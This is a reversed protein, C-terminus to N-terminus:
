FLGADVLLRDCENLLIKNDAKSAAPKLSILAWVPPNMKTRNLKTSLHMHFLRRMRNRIVSKKSVKNSISVACKFTDTKANKHHSILLNPQAKAVRLTMSRGHFMRGAKKLYNFCRYGKLRMPAPLVM